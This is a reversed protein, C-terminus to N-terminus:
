VLETWAFFLVRGFVRGNHCPKKKILKHAHVMRYFDIGQQFRAPYNGDLGSTRHQAIMGKRDILSYDLRNNGASFRLRSEVRVFTDDQAIVGKNWAKDIQMDM